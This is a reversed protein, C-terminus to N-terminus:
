AVSLQTIRVAVLVNTKPHLVLTIGASPLTTHMPFFANAYQPAGDDTMNGVATSRM